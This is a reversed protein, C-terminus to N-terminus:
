FSPRGAVFSNFDRLYDNEDYPQSAATLCVSGPSFSDIERWVWPGILIGTTPSNCIITEWSNGDSLRLRFSGNIAVILQQLARHAHGGRKANAPVGHIYYLRSIDFPVTRLGEIITLDGRDDNVTPINVQSYLPQM